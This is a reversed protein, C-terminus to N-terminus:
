RRTLRKTLKRPAEPETNTYFEGEKIYTSTEMIYIQNKRYSVDIISEIQDKDIDLSLLVGENNANEEIRSDDSTDLSTDYKEQIGDFNRALPDRRITRLVILLSGTDTSQSRM